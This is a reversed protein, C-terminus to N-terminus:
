IEFVLDPVRLRLLQFPRFTRTNLLSLFGPRALRDAPFFNSYKVSLCLVCVFNMLSLGHSFKKHSLLASDRVFRTPRSAFVLLHGHGYRFWGKISSPVVIVFLLLSFSTGKEKTVFTIPNRTDYYNFANSSLLQFHQCLGNLSHNVEHTKPQSKCNFKNRPHTFAVRLFHPKKTSATECFLIEIKIIPSRVYWIPQPVRTIRLVTNDGGARLFRATKSFGICISRDSQAQRDGLGKRDM